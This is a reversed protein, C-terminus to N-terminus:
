IGKLIKISDMGPAIGLFAGNQQGPIPAIADEVTYMTWKKALIQDYM